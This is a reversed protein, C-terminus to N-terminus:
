KNFSQLINNIESEPAGSERLMDSIADENLQNTRKRKSQESARSAITYRQVPKEEEFVEPPVEIGQAQLAKAYGPNDKLARIWDERNKLRQELQKLLSNIERVKDLNGAKEAEDRESLLSISQKYYNDSTLQRKPEEVQQNAKDKLINNYPEVWHELEKLLDEETMYGAKVGNYMAKSTLRLRLSVASLDMKGDTDFARLNGESDFSFNAIKKGTYSKERATKELEFGALNNFVRLNEKINAEFTSDKKAVEVPVNIYTKGLIEIIKESNSAKLEWDTKAMETDFAEGAIGTYNDLSSALTTQGKFTNRAAYNAAEYAAKAVTDRIAYDGVGERVGKTRIFNLWADTFTSDRGYVKMFAETNIDGFALMIEQPTVPTDTLKSTESALLYPFANKLNAVAIGNEQKNFDAIAKQTNQFAGVTKDAIMKSVEPDQTAQLSMNYVGQYDLGLFNDVNAPTILNKWISSTGTLIARRAQEMMQEDGSAKGSQWLSIAVSTNDIGDKVRVASERSLGLESSLMSIELEKKKESDLRLEEQMKAENVQRTNPTIIGHSGIIDYADKALIAGANAKYYKDIEAGLTEQTWRNLEAHAKIDSVGKNFALLNQSTRGGESGGSNDSAALNIGSRVLGLLGSGARELGTYSQVPTTETYNHAVQPSQIDEVFDSRYTDRIQNAM